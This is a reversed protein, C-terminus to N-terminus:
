EQLTTNEIENMRTMEAAEGQIEGMGQAMSQQTNQQAELEAYRQKQLKQMLETVQEPSFGTELAQQQVMQMDVQLAAQELANQKRHKRISQLIKHRDQYNSFEFATELPILGGMAMQMLQASNAANVQANDEKPRLIMSYKGTRVADAFLGFREGGDFEMWDQANDGVNRIVMQPKTRMLHVVLPVVKDNYFSEMSRVFNDFIIGNNAEGEAIEMRYRSAPAEASSIGLQALNVGTIFNLRQDYDAILSNIEGLGQGITSQQIMANDLRQGPKLKMVMVGGIQSYAEAVDDIDYGSQTMVDANVVLLGKAGHAMILERFMLAKNLAVVVDMIDDMVSTFYGDTFQPFFPTYPHSGHPEEVRGYFLLADHTFIARYWIPEVTQTIVFREQVIQDVMQKIESPDEFASYEGTEAAEDELEDLVLEYLKDFVEDEEYGFEVIRNEGTFQDLVQYREESELVYMEVIKVKLKNKQATSFEYFQKYPERTVWSTNSGKNTFQSFHEEIAEAHQPFMQVIQERYKQHVEGIFECDSWDYEISNDDWIMARLPRTDIEVSGERNYKKGYTAKLVGMSTVLGNEFTSSEKYKAKSEHRVTQLQTTVVNAYEDDAHHDFYEGAQEPTEFEEIHREIYQERGERHRVYSHIDRPVLEFSFRTNRQRFILNNILPRYIRFTYPTIDLKKFFEKEEETWLDGKWARMNKEARDLYDKRGNEGRYVMNRFDHLIQGAIDDELDTLNLIVASM